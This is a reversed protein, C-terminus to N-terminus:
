LRIDCKEVRRAIKLPPPECQRLTFLAESTGGRCQFLNWQSVDIDVSALFGDDDGFEDFEDCGVGAKGGSDRGGHGVDGGCFGKSNEGFSRQGAREGVHPMPATQLPGEKNGSSNGDCGSM